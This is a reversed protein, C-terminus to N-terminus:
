HQLETWFTHKWIGDDGGSGRNVSRSIPLGGRLQQGGQNARYGQRQDSHLRTLASRMRHVHDPRFAVFNATKGARWDRGEAKTTVRAVGLSNAALIVLEYTEKGKGM